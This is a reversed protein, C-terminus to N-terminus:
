ASASCYLTRLMVVIMIMGWMVGFSGWSITMANYAGAAPGTGSALLLWRDLLTFPDVTLRDPTIPIMPQM